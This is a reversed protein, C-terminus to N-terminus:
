SFNVEFRLSNVLNSFDEDKVPDCPDSDCVESTSVENVQMTKLHLFTVDLFVMSFNEIKM